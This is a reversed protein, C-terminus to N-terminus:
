VTLGRWAEGNKPYKNAINGYIIYKKSTINDCLYSSLESNPPPPFPPPTVPSLHWAAFRLKLHDVSYKGTLNTTAGSSKFLRQSNEMTTTSTALSSSNKIFHWFHAPNLKSMNTNVGRHLNLMLFVSIYDIDPLQAATECGTMINSTRSRINVHM